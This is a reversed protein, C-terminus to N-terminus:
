SNNNFLIITTTSMCKLYGEERAGEVGEGEGGGCGTCRGSM